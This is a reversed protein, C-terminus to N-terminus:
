VLPSSLSPYWCTPLGISHPHSPSFDLLLSLMPHSQLVLKNFSPNVDTSVAILLLAPHRFSYPFSFSLKPPSTVFVSIGKTSKPKDFSTFGSGQILFISSTFSSETIYVSPLILSSPRTPPLQHESLPLTFPIIPMPLIVVTQSPSTIPFLTLLPHNSPLSFRPYVVNM